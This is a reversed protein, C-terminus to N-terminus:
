LACVQPSAGTNCPFGVPCDDDSGCTLTCRYVGVDFQACKADNPPSVGCVSDDPAAVKTCDKSSFENKAVCSSVRLSCIDSMSGDISVANTLTTVYPRASSCLAPAGDATDGKK